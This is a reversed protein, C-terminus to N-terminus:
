LGTQSNIFVYCSILDGGITGWLFLVFKFFPSSVPLVFKNTENFWSFIKCIFLQRTNCIEM